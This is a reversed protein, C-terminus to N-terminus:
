CVAVFSKTYDVIQLILVQCLFEKFEEFVKRHCTKWEFSQGKKLLDTRCAIIDSYKPIYRQFFRTMGLCSPVDKKSHPHTAEAIVAVRALRPSM